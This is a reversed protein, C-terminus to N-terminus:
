SLSGGDLRHVAIVSSKAPANAEKSPWNSGIPVERTQTFEQGDITKLVYKRSVSEMNQRIGGYEGPHQAALFLTKQDPTILPGTMEADMPGFGFLFAQGANDGSTPIYWVSNNGFIGRLNSQSVPKGEDDIRSAIEKNHKDTSMDTVMWLNGKGDIELNDPNAFGLGGDAPEGGISLMSWKFTMAAPDNNDEELKTIWGYEYPTQEKPGKFVRADPGGDGSSPSGSTFTIFLTGDPRVDTDEPRATCTAGAASAALHADILIAGQKEEANGVYLDNLTKFQQKYPAIAADEEFKAGGGATRDPNPLYILKGEHVSPLDPNIATNPELAIWSGTGDANFKAAYLMGNSLLQSNAKDKPDRVAGASVFKYVHGGRRDCGSYFALPKGAVARVGVAEHRYRGLWTHKTGNDNPNAPDVEVVWGYKNGQLGWASAFGGGEELAGEETSWVFPTESPQMSTGDAYVAEPVQEQFNEEASLSTGWPTTGGSCNQATGVIKEGLTDIYGQGSTKKFVAVAPGTSNLYKSDELGAIGSIRRDASSNTREWSGDPNRRVSIISLGMDYLAAKSIAKIDEKLPDGDALAYTDIEGDEAQQAAARVTAFPLEKGVVQQYGQSWPKLSVYEHNVMLFGEGPKVEVYSIHDCNTGFHDAEGLRDGWAAIVNYTYGEPLVVDDVVAFSSYESIQKAQDLGDTTLPMTGQVPKFPLGTPVAARASNPQLSGNSNILPQLAISGAGAGMFLLFERRKLSM